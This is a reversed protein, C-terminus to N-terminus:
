SGRVIRSMARRWSARRVILVVVTRVPRGVRMARREISQRHYLRCTVPPGRVSRGAGTSRQSQRVHRPPPRQRGMSAAHRRIGAVKAPARPARVFIYGFLAPREAKHSQGRIRVFFKRIPFYVTLGMDKIAREAAFINVLETRAVYWSMVCEPPAAHM